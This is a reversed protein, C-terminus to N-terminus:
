FSAKDSARTANDREAAAVLGGLETKLHSQTREGTDM